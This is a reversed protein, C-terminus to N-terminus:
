LFYETMSCKHLIIDHVPMCIYICVSEQMNEWTCVHMCIYMCIFMHVSGYM